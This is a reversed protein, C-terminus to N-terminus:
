TIPHMAMAFLLLYLVGACIVGTTFLAVWDSMPRSNRTRTSTSYQFVHTGDGSSWPIGQNSEFNLSESLNM